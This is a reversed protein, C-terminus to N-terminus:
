GGIRAGYVLSGRLWVGLWAGPGCRSALAELGRRPVRVVLAGGSLRWEEAAVYPVGRLRYGPPVVGGCLRGQGTYLAISVDKVPDAVPAVTVVLEGGALIASANFGRLPVAYVSVRTENMGDRTELWFSGGPLSDEYYRKLLDLAYHALLRAWQKDFVPSYAVGLGHGGGAKIGALSPLTLSWYAGRGLGLLSSLSPNPELGTYSSVIDRAEAVTSPPLRDQPYTDVVRSRPLWYAVLRPGRRPVLHVHIVAIDEDARDVYELYDQLELPPLHQDLVYLSENLGVAAAAHNSRPLLLVYPDLGAGAAASALLVAYDSCVGKRRALTELPAQVGAPLGSDIQLQKDYDYTMNSDAWALIRWAREAPGMGAWGPVITEAIKEATTENLGYLIASYIDLVEFPSAIYTSEECSGLTVATGSVELGCTWADGEPGYVVVRYSGPELTSLLRGLPYYGTFGAPTATFYDAEVAQHERSAVGPPNLTAVIDTDRAIGVILSGPPKDSAYRVVLHNGAVMVRVPGISKEIIPEAQPPSPEAYYSGGSRGAAPAQRPAVLTVTVTKTVTAPPERVTVTVAEVHTVTRTRTVTRTVARAVTKTLTATTTREVTVTATSTELVTRTATAAPREGGPHQAARSGATHTVTVYVTSAGSSQTLSPLTVGLQRLAPEVVPALVIGLLASALAVVAVLAARRGAM